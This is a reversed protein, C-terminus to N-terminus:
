DVLHFDVDDDDAKESVYSIVASYYLLIRQASFSCYYLRAWLINCSVGFDSDDNYRAFEVLVTADPKNKQFLFHFGNDQLKNLCGQSYVVTSNQQLQQRRRQQQQCCPLPVSIVM